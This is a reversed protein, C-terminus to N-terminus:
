QEKLSDVEASQKITSELWEAHEYASASYISKIKNDYKIIVKNKEEKLSDIRNQLVIQQFILEQRADTLSDIKADYIAKTAIREKEVNDLIYSRCEFMIFIWLAFVASIVTYLIVKFYLKKDPNKSSMM